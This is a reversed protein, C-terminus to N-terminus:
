NAGALRLTDAESQTASPEQGITPNSAQMNKLAVHNPVFDKWTKDPPILYHMGIVTMPDVNLVSPVGGKSVTDALRLFVRYLRAVAVDAPVLTEKSRDRIVGSSTLVVVDEPVLPPIGSFAGNNMAKRDQRFNNARNPKDPHHWTDPHTGMMVLMEETLNGDTLIAKRAPDKGLQKEQDWWVFHHLTRTDTMPVVIGVMNGNANLYHFPAFFSTIRAEDRPGDETPVGRLAAYHLGFNTEEVEIKPDTVTAANKVAAAVVSDSVRSYIDKHLITLHSSDVLAEGIQVFNCEDVVFSVTCRNDAPVDFYPWHAFPPEHEKAGIYTWIFGGAERVPYSKARFKEKFRPDSVNPTEMITGDVAFKWGHFICRIGCEEVRGLMLSASRHCCQEDLIGVIGDTNRFAVFTEGMLEVRRPPGDPEALQETLLVPIWFRRLAEGMPTGRDTQCMKLNDAHSLM